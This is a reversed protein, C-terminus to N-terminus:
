VLPVLSNEVPRTGVPTSALFNGVVRSDARGYKPGLRVRSIADPSFRLEFYPIVRSNAVRFKVTDKRPLCILRWEREERFAANKFRMLHQVLFNAVFGWYRNFEGKKFYAKTIADVSHDIIINVTALLQSDDYVVKALRAPEAVGDLLVKRDFGVAFGRGDRGYARWQSLLDGDDCFCAVFVQNDLTSVLYQESFVEVIDPPVDTHREKLRQLVLRGAHVGETPDNMCMAESAWLMKNQAIGYFGEASSYHFLEPPASQSQDLENWIVMLKDRLEVYAQGLKDSLLGNM